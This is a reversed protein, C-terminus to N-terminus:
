IRQALSKRGKRISPRASSVDHYQTNPVAVNIYSSHSLVVPRTRSHLQPHMHAMLWSRSMDLPVSRRAPGSLKGFVTPAVEVVREYVQVTQDQLM